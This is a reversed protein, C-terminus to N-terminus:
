PEQSGRILSELADAEDSPILGHHRAQALAREIHEPSLHADIVDRIARAPKTIPVPGLCTREADDIEGFHLMLGDPVRLRRSRWREPVTLAVRTPLVDSLGHHFLATEHSFV